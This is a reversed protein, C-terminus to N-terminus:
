AVVYGCAAGNIPGFGARKIIEPHDCIYGRTGFIKKFSRKSLDAPKLVNFVDRLFGPAFDSNLKGKAIPKKGDINGLDSDARLDQGFGNSQAIHKAISYPVIANPRDEAPVAQGSNEPFGSPQNVCGGPATVGIAALFFSRTGSGSQPLYPEITADQGGVQSWNTITCEFIGKLDATTLNGPANYTSGGESKPFRIWTVGDRAFPVFVLDGDTSPNKVRSSRAFDICGAGSEQDAKLAAIGASSGSPRTITCGPATTIESGAPFADFSWLKNKPDTANYNITFGSDNLTGGDRGIVDETTDSGVGVIDSKKPVNPPDTDVGATAPSVGVMTALAAAAVLATITPRFSVLM